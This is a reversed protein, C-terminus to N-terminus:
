EFQCQSHIYDQLYLVQQIVKANMERLDLIDEAVAREVEAAGANGVSGASDAKPLPEPCRAKIYVRKTGNRIDARLSSIEKKANAAEEAHKISLENFSKIKASQQQQLRILSDRQLTVQDREFEAVQRREREILYFSLSSILFLASATLIMFKLRTLM